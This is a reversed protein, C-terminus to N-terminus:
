RDPQPGAWHDGYQSFRGDGGARREQGRVVPAEGGLGAMQRQLAIPIVSRVGQCSFMGHGHPKDGSGRAAETDLDSTLREVAAVLDDGGGPMGLRYRLRDRVGTVGEQGQRKVDGADALCGRRDRRRERPEAPDVREDVIGPATEKARDFLYGVRLRSGDKLD